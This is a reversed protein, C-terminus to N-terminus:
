SFPTTPSNMASVKHHLDGTGGSTPCAAEEESGKDYFPATSENRGDVVNVVRRPLFRNMTKVMEVYAFIWALRPLFIPQSVIQVRHARIADFVGQMTLSEVEVISHCIGFYRLVHCDSNGVMPLGERKALRVGQRNLNFWRSYFFAFELADFLELHALLKGELCTVAKFFPHPAIVFLGDQKARRLDEFTFIHESAANANLLLVHKGEVKREIGPILLIGHDEAFHKLHPTFTFTDHNTIALARFGKAAATAILEEASYGISDHRDDSTHLHFDTKIQM